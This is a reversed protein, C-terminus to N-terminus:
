RRAPAFLEAEMARAAAMVAADGLEGVMVALRGPVAGIESPGAVVLVVRGGRAVEAEAEAPDSSLM